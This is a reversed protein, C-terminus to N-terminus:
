AVRRLAWQRGSPTTSTPAQPRLRWLLFAEALALLHPLERLVSAEGAVVDILTTAALGVAVAVIVPLMGAVRWPRWAAALVGIALAVEIAGLERGVHVHGAVPEGPLLAPLAAIIQVAAVGALALRVVPRPPRDLVGPRRVAEVVRATLDPVAPALGLRVRRTAAVAGEYWSQCVVCDGLHADADAGTGVDDEDDLRASLAV